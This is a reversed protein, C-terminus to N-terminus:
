VSNWIKAPLSVVLRMGDLLKKKRCHKKYAANMSCFVARQKKRETYDPLLGLLGDLFCNREDQTECTAYLFDFHMMMVDFTRRLIERHRTATLSLDHRGYDYLDEHLHHFQGEAAEYCRIWFEYDEALFVDPNYEGAKDALSKRYLFCAGITNRFRIEAPEGLSVEQILNGNMDCVSFDAYVLGMSPQEDLARAMKELADVHYRNDDSTWTLYSGTAQRFGNNLTRPLKQNSENSLVKIRPDKEAYGTIVELTSDTSCDNVIILELNRYSQGLVSEIAGGVRAAGNYVPLVVSIKNEEM